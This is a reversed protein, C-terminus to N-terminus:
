LWVIAMVVSSSIRFLYFDSTTKLYIYVDVKVLRETRIFLSIRLLILFGRKTLALIICIANMAM